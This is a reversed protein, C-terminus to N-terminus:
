CGATLPLIGRKSLSKSATKVSTDFTSNCKARGISNAIRSQRHLLRVYRAKFGCIWGGRLAQKERRQVLWWIRRSRDNDGIPFERLEHLVDAQAQERLGATEKSRIAKVNGDGKHIRKRTCGATCPFSCWYGFETAVTHKPSHAPDDPKHGSHPGVLRRLRTNEPM